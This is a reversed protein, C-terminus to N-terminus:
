SSTSADEMLQVALDRIVSPLLTHEAALVRAALSEPTDAPHVNLIRKDYAALTAPGIKKMYGATVVVEIDHARLAKLMAEDLAQPDPHTRGSLHAYPIERERAYALAGSSGSNGIVLSVTFPASRQAAHLARLNTGTHSALVAIKLSM